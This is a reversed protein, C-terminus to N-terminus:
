RTAGILAPEDIDAIQDSDRELLSLLADELSPVRASLDAPVWGSGV